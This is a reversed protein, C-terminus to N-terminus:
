NSLGHTPPHPFHRAALRYNILSTPLTYQPCLRHKLASAAPGLQNLWAAVDSGEKEIALHAYGGGPCIVVGAGTAKDAPPLYITFTPRDDEQSGVAGPAGEPWLLETRQAMAPAVLAMLLILRSTKM